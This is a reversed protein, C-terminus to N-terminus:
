MRELPKLLAMRNGTPDTFQAMRGVTPIDMGPMLTKGGNAEIKALTADVDDVYIYPVVTGAPNGEESVPNFGVGMTESGWSATTYNMEDFDQIQWDFISSYFRALAQRDSASLEVHVIPHSM